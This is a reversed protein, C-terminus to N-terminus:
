TSKTNENLCTSHSAIHCSSLKALNLCLIYMLCSVEQWLELQWVHVSNYAWYSKFQLWTHALSTSVALPASAFAHLIERIYASFVKSQAAKAMYMYVMASLEWVYETPNCLLGALEYHILDHPVLCVCPLFQRAVVFCLVGPHCLTYYYSNDDCWIHCDQEWIRVHGMPAHSPRCVLSYPHHLLCWTIYILQEKWSTYCHIASIM